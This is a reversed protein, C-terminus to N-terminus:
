DCGLAKALFSLAGEREVEKVDAQMLLCAAWLEKIQTGKRLAATCFADLQQAFAEDGFTFYKMELGCLSAAIWQLVSKVEKNGGFVGCGWNGTAVMPIDARDGLVGQLPRINFGACCKVLERQMVQPAIQMQLLSSPGRGMFRYDAADICTILSGLSGDSARSCMDRHDGSFELDFAYGSCSSFREFGSIIIAENEKMVECLLLSVTLEPCVAFRIEEQVCGGEIVGGGIMKNAFDVHLAHGTEEIAGEHVASLRLLPKSSSSWDMMHEHETKEAPIAGAASKDVCARIFNLDGQPEEKRIRNFYNIFCKLKANEQRAKSIHLPLMTRINHKEFEAGSPPFTCLFMNALLCSAQRRSMKVHGSSGAPLYGVVGEPYLSTFELARAMIFPLTEAYFTRASNHDGCLAGELGALHSPSHTCYKSIMRACAAATAKHPEEEGGIDPLAEGLAQAVKAWTSDAILCVRKSAQAM